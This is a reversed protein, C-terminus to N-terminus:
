EHMERLEDVTMRLLPVCREMTVKFSERHPGAAMRLSTHGCKLNDPPRSHEMSEHRQWQGQSLCATLHSLESPQGPLGHTMQQPSLSSPTPWGTNQLLASGILLSEVTVKWLVSGVDVWEPM